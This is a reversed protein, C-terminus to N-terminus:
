KTFVLYFFILISLAQISFSVLYQKYINKFEDHKQSAERLVAILKFQMTNLLVHSSEIPINYKKAVAQANAAINLCALASIAGIIFVAVIM